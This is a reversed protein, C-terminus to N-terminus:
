ASARRQDPAETGFGDWARHDVGHEDLLRRFVTLPTVDLRNAARAEESATFWLEDADLGADTAVRTLRRMEKRVRPSSVPLRM